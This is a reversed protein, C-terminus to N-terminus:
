SSYYIMPENRTVEKLKAKFSKWRKPNVILQYKGKIGKKYIPVFGFGLIQFNVPRRIGSKDRNIPLKLKDRLFVYIANGVKRAESKTKCYISFDGAYRVFKLGLREMEIDLEHLIINSLLPSIPSGQPIGIRRKYLKGDKELPARLWRRILCMTHKCKIKRHLLQLLLVHDVRDFFEKLDIEVIHQCGSNINGLAKGTAQQTNRHPRFGYTYSSFETKHTTNVIKQRM